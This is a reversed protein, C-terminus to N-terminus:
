FSFGLFVGTENKPLLPGPRGLAHLPNRALICFTGFAATHRRSGLRRCSSRLTGRHPLLTTSLNSGSLITQNNEFGVTRFGAGLGAYPQWRAGRPRFYYKGIVPFEWSNGRTRISFVSNSTGADFAFLATQGLRHYIASAEVAFEKPLRVELSPGIVFAQSEGSGGLPDSFPVGVKAGISFSQASLTTAVVILLLLQARMRRDSRVQADVAWSIHNRQTERRSGQSAAARRHLRLPIGSGLM